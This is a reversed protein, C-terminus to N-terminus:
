RSDFRTHLLRLCRVPACCANQSAPLNPVPLSDGMLCPPFIPLPLSPICSYSFFHCCRFHGLFVAIPLFPCSPPLFFVKVLLCSAGPISGPRRAPVCRCFSKWCAPCSPPKLNCKRPFMLREQLRRLRLRRPRRRPWSRGTSPWDRTATCSWSCTVWWRGGWEASGGEFRAAIQM